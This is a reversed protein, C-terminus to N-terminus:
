GREAPAATLHRARTTASGQVRVTSAPQDEELCDTPALARAYHQCTPSQRLNDTTRYCVSRFSASSVLFRRASDGSHALLLNPFAGTETQLYVLLSLLIRTFWVLPSFSLNVFCALQRVVSAGRPGSDVVFPPAKSSTDRRRRYSRRELLSRAPENACLM